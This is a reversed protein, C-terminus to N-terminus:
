RYFTIDSDYRNSYVLLWFSGFQFLLSVGTDGFRFPWGRAVVAPARWPKEQSRGAQLKDQIRSHGLMRNKNYQPQPPKHHHRCSPNDISGVGWSVPVTLKGSVTGSQTDEGGTGMSTSALQPGLSVLQILTPIPSAGGVGFLSKLM